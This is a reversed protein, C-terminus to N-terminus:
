KDLGKEGHRGKRLNLSQYRKYLNDAEISYEKPMPQFHAKGNHNRSPSYKRRIADMELCVDMVEQKGKVHPRMIRIFALAEQQTLRLRYYPTRRGKTAQKIMKANPLLSNVYTVPKLDTMALEYRIVYGNTIRGEKGRPLRSIGVFSEADIMAALYGLEFDNM